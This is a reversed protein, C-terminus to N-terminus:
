RIAAPAWRRIQRGLEISKELFVGLFDETELMGDQMAAAVIKGTEFALVADPALRVDGAGGDLMQNARLIAAVNGAIIMHENRNRAPVLCIQAAEIDTGYMKAMLADIRGHKM